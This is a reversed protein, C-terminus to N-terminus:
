VGDIQAGKQGGGDLLAGGRGVTVRGSPDGRRLRPLYGGWATPLGAISEL